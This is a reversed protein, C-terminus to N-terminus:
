QTPDPIDEPMAPHMVRKVRTERPDVEVDALYGIDRVRKPPPILDPRVLSLARSVLQLAPVSTMPSRRRKRSSEASTSQLDPSSHDSSSHRSLSDSSSHDVYHRMLLQQVLLPRVRKRATMMHVPGNPHYRYPRGHSIPQGPVLIMVRRRPIVPSRQTSTTIKTFPTDHTPSPPTYPTDSDTTDDDSSLFPLIAPLPPIHGSSPDESPDSEVESAPSYDPSALTYDPSPPITPAIIPTDTTHPAIVPTTDPITTPITGFLIVRGAPTGMSDESSDSSISIIFTAMFNKGQQFLKTRLAGSTTDVMPASNPYLHPYKKQMQDEREWTFEHGRKSNWRVKVIPIHSQKLGKVERDMIEIPEEIFNLKDNVQIEDLPIALPEDFDLVCARLMDELTQITRESQGDIKPHYATSMDLRTSVYTAIEAKMNPWWYLRKLDQYMKDSRPHISYKSKHSEHMILARLDGFCPIWSRNNLCLTRDARPELKNIMGHLDENIFNEEKRAESQANLIQKPLNLGYLYHRWMKLAIVVAGLELDHTTYNKEHVKLQRSAYAIVKEKQMLVAGLGKHSADCYVVFNEIGEPLALISMSCLKQKLLQFAVKVKEGWDFKMSKSDVEDYAKSLWFECKLFKAYLEEKKLLKLILKLHGEHEKRNKYYILIYDIFVIMFRDLYPKCVRNMLDMFVTPANTLGFPMVQFEYHGYRTRFATKPIDDEWVLQTSLDQMKTPALQYPARAVPVVSPILDIHFEVQRAPPLGPFDELFVKLFERVIPVDELRKEESKDEAKKSTVQAVYVQCGKQIYKHTKTCSIINLKSEDDCNDGRIILVEDIIVDFSGLEVPMLDINFPHGLLGLTYGRLIINTETVVNSYLNTGGGSITYAKATVENGGAKNGAKNRTQNRCNQNRLKSCDKKFHGPRIRGLPIKGRSHRNSDVIDRPNSEMRRKNEASRAAYGQLKKDMLQNAIHIADQLRAPNAAIVNGQINDPLGGIFREERDEEDLVMRTCLLILEQFRQTYATLDNGKITLNWLETEMKQVENRLCYVETMLKMLGAWKMAYAADVGIINFVAEIKEFWRTLGVIGETGSFDHLKCKLFDQFTCERAMPMFGGYNMAHNGNGENRNGGNGGNNGNGNGENGGNENGENEDEQEEENENLAELNRAVERAEIEEAVRRAILEEVEEHTMSSIQRMERQMRSMGRQLRDVRQSEVSATGKLRQNDRELEAVRETLVTVASEVGVIRREQERLIGKTTQIRHVLIAHTHDHFRQILDGLTEYTVEAAGEEVDALYGIDRFRKPLPILDARVPSLAGSVLPLTPVFTMPSRRRKRSPGASTSQLDPSSHDSSSHRSSFDSSYHDVSHRVSLQQVPLPRVRKRTTMMHVTGNPHYRYPRGDPIPQGHALIMVRHRPIVPSRQTSATIETFPTDHTPSPPTDSTDSDTTDDDSSLFPSIAPLPPIHGSSRHHIRLHDSEVESAPSNDPSALIYDLFPPIIPAIIPTDTTPPAIMPTTDPIITPITGFLIVRGVPTGMSDKSSDSSILIVSTVMVQNEIVKARSVLRDCGWVPCKAVPKALPQMKPLWKHVTRPLSKNTNSKSRVNMSNHPKKRFPMKSIPPIKVSEDDFIFLNNEDFLDCMRSNCFVNMADNCVYASSTEGLPSNNCSLLDKRSYRKVDKNLKLHSQIRWTIVNKKLWKVIMESQNNTESIANESLEFAKSKLSEIIKLNAKEKELLSMVEDELNIIIKELIVNSVYPKLSSTQQFPSDIKDFDLNIIEQFYDDSLNIKENVYSANLNEYDYAFKIKNERARKFKEIELAENSHTLFMLTYELGIVKEDYLIPRLDKEKEFYRPNEFGIGKRGNYLTDKSPMIMHVTQNTQGIKRLKNECVNLCELCKEIELDKNRVCEELESIKFDKELVTNTLDRVHKNSEVLQVSMKDYLVQQDAIQKRHQKDNDFYASYRIMYEHREAELKAYKEQCEVHTDIMVHKVQLQDKLVEFIKDDASSSSVKSDSLIKKIQAMFVMNANIEQDSDSSSEMWAQDEALLVQKDKDKKALLMKTKYYEYDKVKVKKTKEAILALPDSSVVINKKKLRMADNVDGQNQKLINYLADINIDQLYRIYTDLLLEGKTAKFTEYEYLVAAKRDQESYESGLMNRVLADWLDKTIKKSDILSYIDNPLGQILLSRALRDIKQIKKEQDTWISKNNKISNIMAEGDTQEEFYNMFREVWQSYEGRYLLPIRM